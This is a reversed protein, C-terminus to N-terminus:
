AASAHSGGEHRYAGTLQNRDRENGGGQGNALGTLNPPAHAPAAAQRLAGLLEHPLVDKPLFTRAGAALAAEADGPAPNAEYVVIPVGPAARQVLRIAVPAPDVLRADLLVVDPHQQLLLAATMADDAAEGTVRMDPQLDILDRVARRVREVSDALFIRVFGADPLL